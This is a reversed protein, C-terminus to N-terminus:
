KKNTKSDGFFCLAQWLKKFPNLDRSATDYKKHTLSNYLHFKIQTSYIVDTHRRLLNM